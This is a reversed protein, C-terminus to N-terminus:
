KLLDICFPINQFSVRQMNQNIPFSIKHHRLLQLCLSCPHSLSHTDACQPIMAEVAAVTHRTCYKMKVSANGLSLTKFLLQEKMPESQPLYQFIDLFSYHVLIGGGLPWSQSIRINYLYHLLFSKKIRRQFCLTQILSTSRITSHLSIGKHSHNSAHACIRLSGDRTSPDTVDCGDM